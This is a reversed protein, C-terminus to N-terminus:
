ESAVEAPGEAAKAARASQVLYRATRILTESEMQSFLHDLGPDDVMAAIFAAIEGEHVVKAPAKRDQLDIYLNWISTVYSADLERVTDLSPFLAKSKDKPDRFAALAMHHIQARSLADRDAELFRSVDVNQDRCQKAVTAYAEVNAQAIEADTLLRVGIEEGSEPLQVVEMERRTRILGRIAKLAESV